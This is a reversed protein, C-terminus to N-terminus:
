RNLNSRCHVRLACLTFLQSALRKKRFREAYLLKDEEWESLWEEFAVHHNNM